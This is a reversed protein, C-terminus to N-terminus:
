IINSVYGFINSLLSIIVSEDVQQNIRETNFMQLIDKLYQFAQIYTIELDILEEKKQIKTKGLNMLAILETKDYNSYDNKQYGEDFSEKIM